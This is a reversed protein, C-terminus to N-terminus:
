YISLENHHILKVKLREAGEKAQRTFTSNTVVLAESADICGKGAYVESVAKYGVPNSYLKCQIAIKREDKEAIIDVGYDGSGKTVNSHWENNIQYYNPAINSM